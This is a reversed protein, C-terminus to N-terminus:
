VRGHPSECEEGKGVGAGQSGASSWYTYLHWAASWRKSGKSEDPPGSEDRRSQQEKDQIELKSYRRRVWGKIERKLEWLWNRSDKRWDTGKRKKGLGRICNLAEEELVQAMITAGVQNITRPRERELEGEM